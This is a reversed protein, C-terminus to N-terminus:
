PVFVFLPLLRDKSVSFPHLCKGSKRVQAKESSLRLKLFPWSTKGFISTKFILVIIQFFKFFIIVHCHSSDFINSFIRPFDFPHSYFSVNKVCFTSVGMQQGILDRGYAAPVASCTELRRKSFILLLVAGEGRKRAIKKYQLFALM